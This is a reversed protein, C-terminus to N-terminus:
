PSGTGGGVTGQVFTMHGDLIPVNDISMQGGAGSIPFSSIGPPVGLLLMGGAAGTSGNAAWGVASTDDFFPGGITGPPPTVTFGTAGAGNSDVVHLAVMGFGSPVTTGLATELDTLDNANVVPINELVGAVPNVRVITPVSLQSGSGVDLLQSGTTRTDLTFAGNADTTTTAGTAPSTVRVGAGALSGCATPTRLDSALCVRGTVISNGGDPQGGGGVPIGGGNAGGAGGGNIQPRDGDDSTACGAIAAFFLIMSTKRM